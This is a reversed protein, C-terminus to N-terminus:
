LWSDEPGPRAGPEEDHATLRERWYLGGDQRRGVLGAEVLDRRLRVPDDLVLVRGARVLRAGGAADINHLWQVDPGYTLAVVVGRPTRFAMVPTRYRRGSSRGVHHM